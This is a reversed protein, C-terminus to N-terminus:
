ALDLVTLYDIWLLEIESGTIVEIWWRGCTTIEATATEAASVQVRFVGTTPDTIILTSGLLSPASNDIVLDDEFVSHFTMRVTKGTLDIPVGDPDTYTFVEAYTIGKRFYITYQSDNNDILRAM